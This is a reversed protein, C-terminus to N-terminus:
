NFIFGNLVIVNDGILDLEYVVGTTNCIIRFTCIDYGEDKGRTGSEIEAQWDDFEEQLETIAEELTSFVYPKDTGDFLNNVWGECLSFQLIEYGSKQINSVM